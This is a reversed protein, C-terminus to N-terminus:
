DNKHANFESNGHNHHHLASDEGYLRQLNEATLEHLPHGYCLQRKNLCLVKDAYKYVVNLDHSILIIAFKKTDQLRTLIKYITAEGTVDVGATPEDFFVIDPNDALASAILVKQFEGGSLIGLNASFIDVVGIGLLNLLIGASQLSINQIDFFDGVSLPFDRILEVRQPVYGVKVGNAWKVDGSHPLLGLIAKFLVTKGAGNPGVIALTENKEVSFDLGGIIEHGDVIVKLNKIELIPM